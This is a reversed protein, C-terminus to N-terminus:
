LALYLAVVDYAYVLSAHLNLFKASSLLSFALQTQCAAHILASCLSLKRQCFGNKEIAMKM